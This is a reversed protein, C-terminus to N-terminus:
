QSDDVALKPFMSILLVAGGMVFALAYDWDGTIDLFGTVKQPNIMGSIILGFGFITGSIFSMIINM